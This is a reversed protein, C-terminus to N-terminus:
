FNKKTKNSVTVNDIKNSKNNNLNKESNSNIEMNVNTFPTKHDPCDPLSYHPLSLLESVMTDKSKATEEIYEKLVDTTGKNEDPKGENLLQTYVQLLQESGRIKNMTEKLKECVKVTNLNTTEFDMKDQKSDIIM